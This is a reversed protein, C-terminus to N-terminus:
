SLHFTVWLECVAAQRDIQTGALDIHPTKRCLTFVEASGLLFPVALLSCCPKLETLGVPYSMAHFLIHPNQCDVAALTM